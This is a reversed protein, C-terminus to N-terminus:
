AIQGLAFNVGLLGAAPRATPLPRLFFLGAAGGYGSRTEATEASFFSWAYRGRGNSAASTPQARFKAEVNQFPAPAEKQRATSFACRGLM